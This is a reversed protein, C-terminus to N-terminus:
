NSFSLLEIDFVLDSDPCITCQGLRCSGASGYGLESPVLLRIEGGEGILPVGLQWGRIVGSLPFTAPSRGRTEDFVRGNTVFGTYNATVSSQLTPREATGPDTIHYLLGTNDLEIYTFTDAAAYDELSVLGEECTGPSTINDDDNNCGYTLVNILLLLAFYRITLPQPNTLQLAVLRPSVFSDSATRRQAGGIQRQLTQQIGLEHIGLGDPVNGSM